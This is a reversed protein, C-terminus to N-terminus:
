RLHWGHFEEPSALRLVGFLFVLEDEVYVGCFFVGTV